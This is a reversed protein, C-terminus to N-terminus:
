PFPIYTTGGTNGDRGDAYSTMKSLHPSLSEPSYHLRSGFGSGAPKHGKIISQWVCSTKNICANIATKGIPFM